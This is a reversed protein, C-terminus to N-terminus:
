DWDCGRGGWKHRGWWNDRCGRSRGCGDDFGGGGFGGGFFGCDRRFHKFPGFSM